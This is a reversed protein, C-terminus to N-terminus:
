DGAEFWNSLIQYQEVSRGLGARHDGSPADRSGPRELTELTVARGRRASSASAGPYYDEMDEIQRLIAECAYYSKSRALRRPSLMSGSSSRPRCVFPSANQLGGNAICTYCRRNDLWHRLTLRTRRGSTLIPRRQLQHVQGRHHLECRRIGSLRHSRGQEEPLGRRQLAQQNRIVQAMEGRIVSRKQQRPSM